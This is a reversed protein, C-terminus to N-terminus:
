FLDSDAEDQRVYVIDAQEKLANVLATYAVQAQTQELAQALREDSEPEAVQSVNDLAIVAVYDRGSVKAFQSGQEPRPMAFARDRVARDLEMSDRRFDAQSLLVIPQDAEILPTEGAALKALYDDAIDNASDAANQLAVAQAVEPKVEDLTKSRAPQYDKVRVVMLLGEGLEIPDSNLRDRMVQESFLATIVKPDAVVAPPNSREFTDTHEVTLGTESALEDLSDPLEFALNTVEEQLQYYQELAQNQQLEQQITTAVESLPKTAEPRVGTLQIIHLGFPTEVVNSVDGEQTLAFVAEDFEDGMIGRAFWDLDGGKEASFTDTSYTKALEAFDGGAALEAEVKRAAERGEDSNELLIHSARREEATKYLDVNAEYYEAVQQESISINQALQQADIRIYEASLMEAQQYLYQHDDFYAQVQEETPIYSAAIKATDIKWYRVSRTQNLLSEIRELENPLVFDSDLVGTVFQRRSMDARVTERFSAPSFGQRSILSLYLDNDFVGDRQFAPMSVIAQRVQEDGIALGHEAVAQDLLAETILRELVSARIQQEFAPNSAMMEFQEGLQQQLRTREDRVANELAQTYIKQDNVKAAVLEAPNGLYSGVGALAFSLIVAGLVVKVITGQSGERIKELM